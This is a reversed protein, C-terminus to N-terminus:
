AVLKNSKKMNEEAWLPQLNALSWCEKFQPDNYSTFDFSDIPKVHDMHWKGYNGWSMDDKFQKELHAVLDCLTYGLLDEWRRGNKNIDIAKRIERSINKSLRFKPDKDRRNKTWTGSYKPNNERWKKNYEKFYELHTERYKIRRAKEKEINNKYRQRALERQSEANNRYWEKTYKRNRENIYEKNKKYYENTRKCVKIANKLYYIKGTTRQCEKCCPSLGEKKQRDKGFENIPKVEKCRSCKKTEM